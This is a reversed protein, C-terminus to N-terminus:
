KEREKKSHPTSCVYNKMYKYIELKMNLTSNKECEVKNYVWKCHKAAIM